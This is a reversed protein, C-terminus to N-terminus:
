INKYKKYDLNEKIWNVAEVPYGSTSVYQANINPVYMYYSIAFVFLITLLEGVTTTMFKM